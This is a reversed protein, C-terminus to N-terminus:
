NFYFIIVIKTDVKCVRYFPYCYEYFNKMNGEFVGFHHVYLYWCVNSRFLMEGAGM